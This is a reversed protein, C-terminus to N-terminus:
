GILIVSPPPRSYNCNLTFSNIREQTTQPLTPESETYEVLSSYQIVVACNKQKFNSATVVALSQSFRGSRFGLSKQPLSRLVVSQIKPSPNAAIEVSPKKQKLKTKKNKKPKAVAIKAEEGAKYFETKKSLDVVLTGEKIHIKLAQNKATGATDLIEIPMADTVSQQGFVILPFFILVISMSRIWDHFPRKFNVHSIHTTM